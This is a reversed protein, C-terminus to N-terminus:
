AGGKTYYAPDTPTKRSPDWVYVWDGVLAWDYLWHSDALSMNVCGHSRQYGFVSHWYAGHLARAQDYYMTWPVDELYYYDSHDATFSGSMTTRDDKEYIQFLGPQTFFPDLGTSVLTAFVLRSNDYVAITQDYLNIEIWRGNEVGKPPTTNPIVRAVFRKEVWEDPGIQTWNVHDVERTEYVPVFNFRHYNNGTAPIGYGPEPQSRVSDLIWGFGSGPYSTVEVGEFSPPTARAINNGDYWDGNRSLFFLGAPSESTGQYSIYMLAGVTNRSPADSTSSPVQSYVPVPSTTLKAYHYPVDGLAASITQVPLPTPPFTIGIQALDDLVQTPGAMLCGVQQGVQMGPLCLADMASEPQSDTSGYVHIPQIALIILVAIFSILISIRQKL